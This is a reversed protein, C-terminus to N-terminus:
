WRVTAERMVNQGYATCLECRIKVVSMNESHLFCFIARIECRTPNDIAPYMM